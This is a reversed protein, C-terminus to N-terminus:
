KRSRRGRRTLLLLSAAALLAVSGPEPVVSVSALTAVWGEQRGQPNLGWGTITNGDDSIGFAEQLTWGTLDLGLDTFVTKLSRMQNVEDWIFAERGVATTGSGVIVSGDGSAARAASSVAGGDFDGLSITGGAATWRFAQQGDTSSGDGVIVMGDASIDWATSVSGGPLFPLAQWEQTAATWRHARQNSVTLSAALFAGDSSVGIFHGATAGMPLAVATLGTAMTWRVPTEAGNNGSGVMISGDHTLDLIRAASIGGALDGVSVIGGAETWRTGVTGNPILTGRGGIASGDGSVGFAVLPRQGGSFLALSQIGGDATWRFAEVAGTGATAAEGVVVTGDGSVAWAKSSTGGSLFGLGEFTAAHSASAACLLLACALRVGPKINM